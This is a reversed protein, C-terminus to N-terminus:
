SQTLSRIFHPSKMRLAENNPFGCFINILQFWSVRFESNKRFSLISMKYSGM